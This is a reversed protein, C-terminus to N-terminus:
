ALRCVLHQVAAWHVFDNPCLLSAAVLTLCGSGQLAARPPGTPFPRTPCVIGTGPLCAGGKVTRRYLPTERERLHQGDWRGRDM